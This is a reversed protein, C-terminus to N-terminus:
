ISQNRKFQYLKLSVFVIRITIIQAQMTLLYTRSHIANYKWLGFSARLQCRFYFPMVSDNSDNRITENGHLLLKNRISRRAYPFEVNKRAEEGGVRSSVM